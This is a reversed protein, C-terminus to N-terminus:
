GIEDAGILPEPSGGIVQATNDDFDGLYYLRYDGPHKSFPLNPDKCADTFSRIAEGKTKVLFPPSFLGVKSDFVSMFMLRM